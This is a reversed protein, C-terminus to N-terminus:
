YDGDFIERHKNTSSYHDIDFSFSFSFPPRIALKQTDDYIAVKRRARASAGSRERKERMKLASEIRGAAKIRQRARASKENCQM